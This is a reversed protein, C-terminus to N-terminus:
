SKSGNFITSLPILHLYAWESRRSSLNTQPSMQDIVSQDIYYVLHYSPLWNITIGLLTEGCRGSAAVNIKFSSPKRQM